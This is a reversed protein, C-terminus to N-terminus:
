MNSAEGTEIDDNDSRTEGFVEINFSPSKFTGGTMRVRTVYPADDGLRDFLWEQVIEKMTEHCLNLNNYGKFM